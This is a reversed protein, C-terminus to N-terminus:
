MQLSTLSAPHPLSFSFSLGWSIGNPTRSRPHGKQTTKSQVLLATGKYRCGWDSSTPWGQCLGHGCALCNGSSQAMPLWYELPQHILINVRLPFTPSADCLHDKWQQGPHICSNSPASSNDEKAAKNPLGKM